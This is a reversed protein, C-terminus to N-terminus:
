DDKNDEAHKIQKFVEYKVREEVFDYRGLVDTIKQTLLYFQVFVAIAAVIFIIQVFAYYPNM